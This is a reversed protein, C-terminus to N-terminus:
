IRFNARSLTDSANSYQKLLKELRQLRIKESHVADRLYDSEEDKRLIEAKVQSDLQELELQHAEDLQSIEAAMIDKKERMATMYKDYRARLDVIEKEIAIADDREHLRHINSADKNRIRLTNIGNIYIELEKRTENIDADLRSSNELASKVEAAAQERVVSLDAVEETLQRQRKQSEKEERNRMEIIESREAEATSKWGRELRVSEAQLRRIEMQIRKDREEQAEKKVAEEHAEVDDVKREDDDSHSSSSSILGEKTKKRVDDGVGLEQRFREDVENRSQASLTRMIKMADDHEQQLRLIETNHNARTEQFRKQCNEQAARVEILGQKREKEVKSALATNLRDLDKELDEKLSSIRYRHEREAAELEVNVMDMRDLVSSRQSELTLRREEDIREQLRATYMERIRREEARGKANAQAMETEHLQQLRSVEPQLARATSDKYETLKAQLYKDLRDEQGSRFTKKEAEINEEIQRHIRRGDSAMEREVVKITEMIDECKQLLEKKEMMLNKGMTIIRNSEEQHKSIEQEFQAGYENEVSEEVKSLSEREAECRNSLTSCVVVKEELEVTLCILQERIKQYNARALGQSHM